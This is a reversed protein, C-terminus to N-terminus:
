KLSPKCTGNQQVIAVTGKAMASAFGEIKPWNGILWGAKDWLKRKGFFPKIVLVSAKHSVIMRKEAPRTLLRRDTTLIVWGRKAAEPVWDPDKADDGFEKRVTKVNTAGLALLADAIKPSINNDLIITATAM